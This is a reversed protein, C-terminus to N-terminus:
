AYLVTPCPCGHLLSPARQAPLASATVVVCSVHGYLTPVPFVPSCSFMRSVVCVVCVFCVVCLCVVCVCVFCVCLVCCMFEKLACRMCRLCVFYKSADNSRHQKIPLIRGLLISALIQFNDFEEHVVCLWSSVFFDRTTQM